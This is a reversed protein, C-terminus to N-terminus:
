PTEVPDEVLHKIDVQVEVLHMQARIPLVKRIRPDFFDKLLPPRASEFYLEAEEAVRASVIHLEDLRSVTQLV